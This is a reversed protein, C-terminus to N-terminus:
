WGERPQCIKYEYCNHADECKIFRPKEFRMRVPLGDGWVTEISLQGVCGKESDEYSPITLYSKGDKFIYYYRPYKPLRPDEGCGFTFMLALILLYKM